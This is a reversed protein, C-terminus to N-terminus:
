RRDSCHLQLNVPRSRATEHHVRGVYVKRGAYPGTLIEVECRENIGPMIDISVVFNTRAEVQKGRVIEGGWVQLVEALLDCYLLRDYKPQSAGGPASDERIAVADRYSVTGRVTGSEQKPLDAM